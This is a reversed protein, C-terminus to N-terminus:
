KKYWPGKKIYEVYAETEITNHPCMQFKTGCIICPDGYGFAKKRVQEIQWPQPVEISHKPVSVQNVFEPGSTSPPTSNARRRADETQNWEDWTMWGTSKEIVEIERVEVHPRYEKPIGMEEYKANADDFNAFFDNKDEYEGDSCPTGNPWVARFQTKIVRREGM